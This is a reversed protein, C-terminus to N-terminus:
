RSLVLWLIVAAVLLVALLVVLGIVIGHWSGATQEAVLVSGPTLAVAQGGAPLPGLFPLPYMCTHLGTDQSLNRRPSLIVGHTPIKSQEMHSGFAGTSHWSMELSAALRAFPFMYSLPKPVVLLSVSVLLSATASM